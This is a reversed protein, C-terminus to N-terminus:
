IVPTLNLTLAYPQVGTMIDNYFTNLSINVITSTPYDIYFELNDQTKATYYSTQLLPTNDHCVPYIYGIKTSSNYGETINTRGMRMNVFGIDVLLGGGGAAYMQSIFVFQCKFKKYQQPLFAAWNVSYDVSARVLSTNVPSLVNNGYTSFIVQYVEGM